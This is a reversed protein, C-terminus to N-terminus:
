CLILPGKLGVYCNECFNCNKSLLKLETLFDDFKEGEEQNRRNFCHRELTENIIGRSFTELAEIIVEPKESQVKTLNLSDYINRTEASFTYRIMACQIKPEKERLGSLLYFDEWKEKWAKWAAYRDVTLDLTPPVLSNSIISDM